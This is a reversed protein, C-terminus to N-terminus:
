IGATWDAVRTHLGPHEVSGQNKLFFLYGAIATSLILRVVAGAIM